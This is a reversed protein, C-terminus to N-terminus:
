FIYLICLVLLAIECVISNVASTYEHKKFNYVTVSITYIIGWLAALAFFIKFINM